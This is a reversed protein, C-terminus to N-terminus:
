EYPPYSSQFFALKFQDIIKETDIRTLPSTSNAIICRIRRGNKEIEFQVKPAIKKDPKNINWNRDQVIHKLFLRYTSFSGSFAPLLITKLTPTRLIISEIDQLELAKLSSDRTSRGTRLVTKAINDVGVKLDIMIQIREKVAADGEHFNPPNIGGAKSLIYWFKNRKNPYYFEYHRSTRYGEANPPPPFSGLILIQMDNVHHYWNPHTEITSSSSNM